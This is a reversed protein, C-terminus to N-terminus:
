LLAEPNKRVFDHYRKLASIVTRKQYNGLEENVGGRDYLPIIHFINRLLELPTLHENECVIDIARSYAYVVSSEYGSAELYEKFDDELTGTVFIKAPMKFVRELYEKVDRRGDTVGWDRISTKHKGEIEEKVGAVEDAFDDMPELIGKKFSDPIAFRVEKGNDFRATIYNGGYEVETFKGDSLVERKTVTGIGWIKHNVLSM